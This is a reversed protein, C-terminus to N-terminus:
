GGWGSTGESCLLASRPGTAIQVIGGAVGLSITFVEDEVKELGNM